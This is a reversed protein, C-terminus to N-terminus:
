HAYVEPQPQGSLGEEGVIWGNRIALAVAHARHGANLKLLISSVHSKVTQESIQLIQGIEKNTKGSAVYSIVQMERFTLPTGIAHATKGMLAMDRFQKVVYATANPIAALIDDIPCEGRSVRRIMESVEEATANKNLYAVAGNKIVEILEENTPNPSLMVVSTNPFHRVIRRSLRLGSLLPYDIDLLLVHPSEDEVAIILNRGPDYDLLELDSEGSLAQCLGKRYFVQKDVIMVRIREM